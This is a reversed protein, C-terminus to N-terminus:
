ANKAKCIRVFVMEGDAATTEAQGIQQTAAGVAKAYGLKDTTDSAQVYNGATIAGDAPVWYGGLTRVRGPRVQGSSTKKYLTEITIGFTGAVGGSATPLVVGRPNSASMLNSTDLLVIRGEPIDDTLSYNAAPVDGGSVYEGGLQYQGTAM